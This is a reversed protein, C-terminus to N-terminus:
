TELENIEEQDLPMGMIAKSMRDLLMIILAQASEEGHFHALDAVVAPSWHVDLLKGRYSLDRRINLNNNKHVQEKVGWAKCAKRFLDISTM